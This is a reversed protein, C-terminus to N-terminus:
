ILNQGKKQGINYVINVDQIICNEEYTINGSSIICKM